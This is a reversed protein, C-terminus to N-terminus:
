MNDPIKSKLRVYRRNLTELWKYTGDPRLCEIEFDGNDYIELVAGIDGVEILGEHQEPVGIVEVLDFPDIRTRPDVKVDRPAFNKGAVWAGVMTALASLLFGTLMATEFRGVMLADLMPLGGTNASTRLSTPILLGLLMGFVGGFVMGTFYGVGIGGQTGATKVTLAATLAGTVLGLISGIIGGVLTGNLTLTTAGLGAGILGGFVAGLVTGLLVSKRMVLENM